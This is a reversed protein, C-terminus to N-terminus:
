GRYKDAIDVAREVEAASGFQGIIYVGKGGVADLLPKLGQLTVGIIQVSKGAELIRRYMPYWRSHGGEEIGAQPTWEIADLEEIALM